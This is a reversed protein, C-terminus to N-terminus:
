PYSPGFLRGARSRTGTFRDSLEHVAALHPDLCGGQPPIPLDSDCDRVQILLVDDPEVSVRVSITALEDIEIWRPEDDPIGTTDVARAVLEVAIREADSLLHVLGWDQRAVYVLCFVSSKATNVAALVM